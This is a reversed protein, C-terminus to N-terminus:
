AALKARWQRAEARRAPERGRCAPPGGHGIDVDGCSGRGLLACRRDDLGSRPPDGARRRAAHM